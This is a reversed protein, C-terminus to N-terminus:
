RPRPAHPLMRRISSLEVETALVEASSDLESSGEPPVLRHEVFGTSVGHLISGLQTFGRDVLAGKAVGRPLNKELISADESGDGHPGNGVVFCQAVAAQQFLQEVRAQQNRGPFDLSTAEVFRTVMDYVDDLMWSQWENGVGVLPRERRELRRRKEMEVQM